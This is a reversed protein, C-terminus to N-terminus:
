YQERAASSPKKATDPLEYFYLATDRGRDSPHVKIDVLVFGHREYFTRLKPRHAHVDLRLTKVERKIGQAKFFDMLAHAVGTKRAAKTVALKHLILSEGKVVDPWFFPDYDILAMCGSPRGEVYAIYFDSIQHKKSLADWRVENASWLTQEMESLWNVADLLINEIIPIDGIGAQRISM